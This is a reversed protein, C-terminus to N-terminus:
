RRSRPTPADMYMEQRPRQRFDSPPAMYMEQRQPDRLEPPADMHHAYPPAAYGLADGIMKEVEDWSVGHRRKFGEAGYQQYESHLAGAVQRWASSDGMQQGGDSTRKLSPQRTGGAYHTIGSQAYNHSDDAM